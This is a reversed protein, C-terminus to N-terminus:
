SSREEVIKKKKTRRKLDAAAGIVLLLFAVNEGVYIQWRELNKRWFLESNDCM